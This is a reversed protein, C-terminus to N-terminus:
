ALLARPDRRLGTAFGTQRRTAIASRYIRVVEDAVVDSDCRGLLARQAASLKTRLATDRALEELAAALLQPEAECLAEPCDAFLEAYGANRGALVVGAGAAIAELLVIGFSEGFRSPFCAIDASALLAAKEGESVTGLFRVADTVSARRAQRQLAARM